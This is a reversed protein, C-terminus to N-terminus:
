RCCIFKVLYVVGASLAAIALLLSILIKEILQVIPPPPQAPESKTM